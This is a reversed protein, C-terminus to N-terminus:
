LVGEDAFSFYSETTLIIHDLIQIELLNSGNKLKKTLEKDSNSPNLNGSPHNHCLIIGCANCKLAVSFILKPDVLTGSTGGVSVNFWGLVYNARNLLLINFEERIELDDSWIKRFLECADKSSTIKIRDSVKVKSTYSVKIECLTSSTKTTISM